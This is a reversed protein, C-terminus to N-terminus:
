FFFPFEELLIWGREVLIHYFSEERGLNPSEHHFEARSIVDGGEVELLFVNDPDEAIQEVFFEELGPDEDEAGRGGADSM